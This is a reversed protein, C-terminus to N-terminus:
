LKALAGKFASLFQEAEVPGTTLPPLLRLVSGERGGVEVVVSDALLADRLRAAHAGASVGTTARMEVALYLGVGRVEAVAAHGATLRRMGEQLMGGIRTANGLLQENAITEL